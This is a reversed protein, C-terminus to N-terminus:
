KARGLGVVWALLDWAMAGLQRGVCLNCWWGGGVVHSVYQSM